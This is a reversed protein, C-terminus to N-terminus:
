PAFRRNHPKDGFGGQLHGDSIFPDACKPAGGKDTGYIIKEVGVLENLYSDKVLDVYQSETGTVTTDHINAYVLDALMEARDAQYM